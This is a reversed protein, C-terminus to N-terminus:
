ARFNAPVQATQSLLTELTPASAGQDRLAEGIEPDDQLWEYLTQATAFRLRTVYGLAFGLHVGRLRSRQQPSLRELLALLPRNLGAPVPPRRGANSYVTTQM